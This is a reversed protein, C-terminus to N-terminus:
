FSPFSSLHSSDDSSRQQSYLLPLSFSPISLYFPRVQVNSDERHIETVSGPIIRNLLDCLLAGNQLAGVFEVLAWTPKIPLGASILWARAEEWRCRFFGGDMLSALGFYCVAFWTVHLFCM